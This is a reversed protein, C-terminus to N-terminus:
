HSKDINRCAFGTLFTSLEKLDDGPGSFAWVTSRDIATDRTGPIIARSHHEMEGFGGFTGDDIYIQQAFGGQGIDAYPVDFYDNTNGAEFWRVVMFAQPASLNLYIMLGTCYNAHIGLKYSEVASPVSAYICDAEIKFRQKGFFASPCYGKKVPIIVDGGEPVQIINWIAPKATQPLIDSSYLTCEQRYGATSLTGPVPFDPANLEIIRKRLGMMAKCSNRLFNVHMATELEVMDKDFSIVQYDAPDIRKPVHYSEMPRSLDSIFFEIEPSIWTRDGGLNTWTSGSLLTKASDSENLAPNVWLVNLDAEPYLGLVRGGFPLICVKNLKLIPSGSEALIKCYNEM